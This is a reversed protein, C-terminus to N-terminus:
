VHRKQKDVLGFRDQARAPCRTVRVNKGREHRHKARLHIADIRKVIHYNDQSRIAGIQDIRCNKTRAADIPIDLDISPVFLTRAFAIAILLAMAVCCSSPIRSVSKCSAKLASYMSFSMKGVVSM